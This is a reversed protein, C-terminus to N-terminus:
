KVVNWKCTTALQRSVSPGTTSCSKASLSSRASHRLAEALMGTMAPGGMRCLHGAAPWVCSDLNAVWPLVVYGVCEHKLAKM